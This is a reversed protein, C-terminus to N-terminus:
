FVKYNTLRSLVVYTIFGALFLSIYYNPLFYFQNIKYGGLLSFYITTGWICIKLHKQFIFIRQSNENPSRVYLYTGLLLYFITYFIPVLMSKASYYVHSAPNRLTTPDNDRKRSDPQYNYDISFRYIPVVINTKQNIEYLQQDLKNNKTDTAELHNLTFTYV